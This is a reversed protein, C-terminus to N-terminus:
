PALKWVEIVTHEAEGKATKRQSTEIRVKDPSDDPIIGAYRLCDVHYKECLNDEDILRCRVSTVRVLLLGTACAQVTDTPPPAVEPRRELEAAERAGQGNRALLSGSANPFLKLLDDHNM